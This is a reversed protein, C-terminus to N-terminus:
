SMKKAMRIKIGMIFVIDRIRCSCVMQSVSNQMRNLLNMALDAIIIQKNGALQISSEKGFLTYLHKLPRITYNLHLNSSYEAKLLSVEPM